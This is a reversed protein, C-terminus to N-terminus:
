GAAFAAAFDGQPAARIEAVSGEQVVRGRELVVVHADLAEADRVDHTSVLAPRDFAALRAALVTRVRVRTVADLASLPEDLLLLKPEVVLARALAVRQREGGSLGLPFRDSLHDCELEHLAGLARTGREEAPIPPETYALGFAVNEVVSLHEFLGYGQPVYGVRRSETPIEVGAGSDTVLTGGIRIEGVETPVLGALARLLTTKGSGNPGVIATVQARQTLSVDLAFDGARAVIRASWTM